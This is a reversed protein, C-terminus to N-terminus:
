LTVREKQELKEIKISLTKLRLFAAYQKERFVRADKIYKEQLTSYKEKLEDLTYKNETM